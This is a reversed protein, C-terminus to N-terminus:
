EDKERYVKHCGGCSAGIAEMSAQLTELSSVEAASAATELAKGKAVFDDWNSWIEPKAESEPDDAQTEFVAPIKTASDVLAARETEAVAADFPAKGTAMDGLVKTHQAQTKMLAQRAKVNPDTAEAHVAAAGFAILLCAAITRTPLPM